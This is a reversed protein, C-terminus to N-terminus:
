STFFLLSYVEHLIYDSIGLRHDQQNTAPSVLGDYFVVELERKYIALTFLHLVKDHKHVPYQHVDYCFLVTYAHHQLTQWLCAWLLKNLVM